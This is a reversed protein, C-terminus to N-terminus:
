DDDDNDVGDANGGGGVLDLISVPTLSLFAVGNEDVSAWRLRVGPSAAAAAQVQELTPLEGSGAMAVRFLVPDPASRKFATNPGYVDFVQPCCRVAPHPSAQFSMCPAEPTMYPPVLAVDVCQVVQASGFRLCWLIVLMRGPAPM